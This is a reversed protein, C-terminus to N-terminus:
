KSAIQELLTVMKEENTPEATEDGSSRREKMTNIPVVIFFYVAGGILLLNLAATLLSGYKIVGDGVTFTLDDFSPKGVVAAILPTIVGEVLATVVASFAAGIIVGVALDIANGQIIFKKFGALM